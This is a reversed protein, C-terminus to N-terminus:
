VNDTINDSFQMVCQDVQKKTIYGGQEFDNDFKIELVTLEYIEANKKEIYNCFLGFCLCVIISSIFTCIVILSFITKERIFLMRIKKLISREM